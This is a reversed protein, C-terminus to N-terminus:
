KTLSAHLLSDLKEVTYSIGLPPIISFKNGPNFTRRVSSSFFFTAM